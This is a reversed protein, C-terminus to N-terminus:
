VRHASPHDGTPSPRPSSWIRRGSPRISNQSPRPLPVAGRAPRTSSERGGADEDKGECLMLVGTGAFKSRRGGGRRCNGTGGSQWSRSLTPPRFILGLVRTTGKGPEAQRIIFAVEKKDYISPKNNPSMWAKESCIDAAINAASIYGYMKSIVFMMM